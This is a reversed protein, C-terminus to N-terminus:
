GIVGNNNCEFSLWEGYVFHAPIENCLTDGILIQSNGILLENYNNPLIRVSTVKFEGPFEAMWWAYPDTDENSTM